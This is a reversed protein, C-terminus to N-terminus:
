HAILQNRYRNYQRPNLIEIESLLEDFLLKTQCHQILVDTLAGVSANDGVDTLVPHFLPRDQCFRWLDRATFADKILGRVAGADISPKGDAEGQVQMRLRRHLAERYLDNRIVCAGQENKVVGILELEASTADSRSFPVTVGALIRAIANWLNPGGSDLAKLTHPLNREEVQLLEETLEEVSRETITSVADALRAALLQTWYPHGGTWRHIQAGVFPPMEQGLARFGAQLMQESEALSLDSLYV